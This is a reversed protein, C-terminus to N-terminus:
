LLAGFHRIFLAAGLIPVLALLNGLLLTDGEFIQLASWHPHLHGLCPGLLRARPTGFLVLVLEAVSPRVIINEQVRSRIVLCVDLVDVPYHIIWDVENLCEGGVIIARGVDCHILGSSFNSWSM